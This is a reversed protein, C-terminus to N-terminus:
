YVSTHSSNLRTSKRDRVPSKHGRQRQRGERASLDAASQSRRKTTITMKGTGKGKGSGNGKGNGKGKPTSASGSMRVHVASPPNNTRHAASRVGCPKLESSRKELALRRREMREEAHQKEVLGLARARKVMGVDSYKNRLARGAREQDIYSSDTGKTTYFFRAAPDTNRESLTKLNTAIIQQRMRSLPRGHFGPLPMSRALRVMKAMQRKSGSSDFKEIGLVPDTEIGVSSFHSAEELGLSFDADFINTCFLCLPVDDHVRARNMRKDLPNFPAGREARWDALSKFSMTGPLQSAPFRYECLTCSERHEEAQANQFVPHEEEERAKAALIAKREVNKEVVNKMSKTFVELSRSYGVPSSTSSDDDGKSSKKVFKNTAPDYAISKANDLVQQFLSPTPSPPNTLLGDGDATGVRSSGQEVEEVEQNSHGHFSHKIAEIVCQRLNDGDMPLMIKRRMEPESLRYVKLTPFHSTCDALALYLVGQVEVAHRM